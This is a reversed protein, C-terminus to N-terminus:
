NEEPAEAKALLERLLDPLIGSVAAIEAASPAARDDFPFDVALAHKRTASAQRPSRTRRDITKKQM